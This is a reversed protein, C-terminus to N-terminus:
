ISLVRDNGRGVHIIHLKRNSYDTVFIGVCQELVSNSVFPTGAVEVPGDSTLTILPIGGDSIVIYDAHTHGGLCFEVRGSASSFDYGYTVGGYDFMGTKRENYDELLGIIPRVYSSEKCEGTEQNVLNTWIHSIAIIHWGQPVSELVNIVYRATQSTFSRNQSLYLRGTDLCIFRTQSEEDDFYFNFFPGYVVDNMQSQLYSYVQEDSLHNELASSQGTANDDHNGFVCYFSSSMFSFSRQFDFGLQLADEPDTYYNTIVDGGFFVRDLPTYDVIHKILAPSHKRNRGWHADTFFVFSVSSGNSEIIAEEAKLEKELIHNEFYAPFRYLPNTVIPICLMEGAMTYCYLNSEIQVISYICRNDKCIVQYYYDNDAIVGTDQNDILWTGKEGLSISPLIILGSTDVGVNCGTKKENIVWYGSDSISILPIRDKLVLFVRNNGFLIRYADGESSFSIVQKRSAFSDYLSHQLEIGSSADIVLM